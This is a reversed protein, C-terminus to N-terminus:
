RLLSVVLGCVLSRQGFYFGVAAVCLLVVVAGLVVNGISLYRSAADFREQWAIRDAANM